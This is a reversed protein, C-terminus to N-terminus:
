PRLRVLCRRDEWALVRAVGVGCAMPARALSDGPGPVALGPYDMIVMVAAAPMGAAVMLVCPWGSACARGRVM